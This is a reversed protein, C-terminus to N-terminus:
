SPHAKSCALSCCEETTEAELETELEQRQKGRYHITVEFDFLGKRGGNAKTMTNILAVFSKQGLEQRAGKWAERISM